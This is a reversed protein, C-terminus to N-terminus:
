SSRRTSRARRSASTTRACCVSRRLTTSRTTSLSTASTSGRTAWARTDWDVIMLRSGERARIINGSLLDNHCPLRRHAGLAREIRAAADQALAYAPALAAGRTRVLRAYDELLEGVSFARPLQAGSDHFSRLALGLDAAHEAVQAPTLADCAVYRAVLCDEGAAAIQPAIGLAAASRAAVRESERDIGLLETDRGHVRVVYEVGGLVVRYNRNTIGGALAVPAGARRGLTRELEGVINGLEQM